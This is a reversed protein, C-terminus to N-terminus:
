NKDHMPNLMGVARRNEDVTALEGRERKGSIMKKHLFFDRRIKTRTHVRPSEFERFQGYSLIAPM